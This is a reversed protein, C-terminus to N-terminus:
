IQLQVAGASEQVPYLKLRMLSGDTGVAQGSLLDFRFFHWPCVITSGHLTGSGLPGGFHPCENHFAVVEGGELRTLVVPDGNSLRIRKLTAPIVDGSPCATEWMM